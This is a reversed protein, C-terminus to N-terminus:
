SVLRVRRECLVTRFLGRLCNRVVYSHGANEKDASSGYPVDSRGNGHHLL